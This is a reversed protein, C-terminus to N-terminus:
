LNLRDRALELFTFDVSSSGSKWSRPIKVSFIIVASEGGCWCLGSDAFKRCGFYTGVLLWRLKSIVFFSSLSYKPLLGFRIEAFIVTSTQTSNSRWFLKYLDFISSVLVFLPNHNNINFAGDSSCKFAAAVTSLQTWSSADIDLYLVLSLAPIILM